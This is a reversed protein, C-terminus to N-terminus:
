RVALWKFEGSTWNSCTWRHPAVNTSTLTMDILGSDYLVVQIEASSMAAPFDRFRVTGSIFSGPELNLGVLSKVFDKTSADTVTKLEKLSLIKAM